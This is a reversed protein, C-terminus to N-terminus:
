RHVQDIFAVIRVVLICAFGAYLVGMWRRDVTVDGADAYFEVPLACALAVSWLVLYDCHLGIAIVRVGIRRTAYHLCPSITELAFYILMINFFVNTQWLFREEHTHPHGHDNKLGLSVVFCEAIAVPPLLLLLLVVHPVDHPVVHPAPAPVQTPM